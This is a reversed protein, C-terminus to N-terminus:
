LPSTDVNWEPCDALYKDLNIKGNIIEVGEDVLKSMQLLLGEGGLSIEGKSNIVRHWPLDHTRSMTSLIRSIQRAGWPNGACAAIQGYTMVKGVPIHRIIHLVRQTFETMDMVEEIITDREVKGQM